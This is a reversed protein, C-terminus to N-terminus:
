HLQVTSWKFKFHNNIYNHKLKYDQLNNEM